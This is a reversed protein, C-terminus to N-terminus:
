SRTTIIVVPTIYSLWAKAIEFAQQARQNM